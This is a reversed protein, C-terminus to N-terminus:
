ICSCNIHRRVCAYIQPAAWIWRLVLESDMGAQGPVEMALEGLCWSTRKADSVAGSWWRLRRKPWCTFGPLLAPSHWVPRYSYHLFCETAVLGQNSDEGSWRKRASYYLACAQGQLFSEDLLASTQGRPKSSGAAWDGHPQSYWRAHFTGSVQHPFRLLITSIWTTFGLFKAM